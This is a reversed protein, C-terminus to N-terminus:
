GQALAGLHGGKPEGLLLDAAKAEDAVSRAGPYADLTNCRDTSNAVSLLDKHFRLL